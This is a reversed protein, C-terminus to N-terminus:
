KNPILNKGTTGIMVKFHLSGGIDRFYGYKTLQPYKDLTKKTNTDLEHPYDKLSIIKDKKLIQQVQIPTKIFPELVDFPVTNLLLGLASGSKEGYAREFDKSVMHKIKDKSIDSKDTGMAVSKRGNSDKYMIVANVKGNNTSLKWFPINNIMDEKNKFGNGHIGGISAYSNQLIDWVQDVYKKKSEITDDSYGIFNLYSENLLDNFIM